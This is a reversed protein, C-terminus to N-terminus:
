NNFFGFAFGVKRLELGFPVGVHGEFHITGRNREAFSM